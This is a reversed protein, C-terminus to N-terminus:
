KVHNVEKTIYKLYLDKTIKYAEFFEKRMKKLTLVINEKQMEQLHWAVRIAIREAKKFPLKEIYKEEESIFVLEVPLNTAPERLKNSASTLETIINRTYLLSAFSKKNSKKLENYLFQSPIPCGKRIIKELVESDKYSDFSYGDAIYRMARIIMWPTKEFLKEAELVPKLKKDKIDQVGSLPDIIEGNSRIAIAEITFPASLIEKLEDGIVTYKLKLNYRSDILM